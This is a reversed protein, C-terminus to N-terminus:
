TKALWWSESITLYCDVQKPHAGLEVLASRWQRRRVQERLTRFLRSLAIVHLLYLEKSDMKDDKGSRLDPRGDRKLMPDQGSRRNSMKSELLEWALRLSGWAATM